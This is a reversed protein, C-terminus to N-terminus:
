YKACHVCCHCSLDLSVALLWNEREVNHVALFRMHVLHLFNKIVIHRLHVLQLVPCSETLDICRITPVASPEFTDVKAPDFPM